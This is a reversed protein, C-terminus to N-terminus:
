KKKESFSSNWVFSQFYSFKFYHIFNQNLFTTVSFQASFLGLIVQKITSRKSVFYRAISLKMYTNLRKLPPVLLINKSVFIDINSSQFNIASKSGFNTPSFQVTTLNADEKLPSLSDATASDSPNNGLSDKFQTNISWSPYMYFLLRMLSYPVVKLACSRKIQAFGEIILHQGLIGPCELITSM